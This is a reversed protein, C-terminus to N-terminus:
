DAAGGRRGPRPAPKASVMEKYLAVVRDKQAPDAILYRHTGTTGPTFQTRGDDLVSITGPESLKFYDGDPHVAFLTAALAAAPADYPMPKFARYADVVPHAPAWALDAEISAGPYPLAAGVESGVAVLPTPWEAFLKRAAAIDSKITAEAPGSPFAGAAVVLQKVKAVIQPRSGYLSVLRALGTAPGALVIAANGDIQALITNRILVANEATDRLKTINSAYLPTGDEGKKALMAALQPTEDSPGSEPMGIMGEPNQGVGGGGGGVPRSAYFAAVVDAVQAAKLSPRSICLAIRRAEGKAAFGNLLAVGLVADIRNGLDGDFAIGIPPPATGRGRAQM